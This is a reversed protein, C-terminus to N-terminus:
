YPDQYIIQMRGRLRRLERSPLANVDLGDFRVAGAEPRVLRLVAQATTTKGCGSEGVLAVLEGRDVGFSVGSVAHVFQKPQRAVARVVGRAVPYRVVLGEVELLPSAPASM